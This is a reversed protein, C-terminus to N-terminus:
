KFKKLLNEFNNVMKEYDNLRKFSEICSDSYKKYVSPESIKIIAEVLKNEDKYPILIGNEGSTVIEPIGGRDTAVCPIGFRMTELLSLPIGEGASPLLALDIESAYKDTDEVYGHFVVLENLPSDECLKHLREKEPGDGLIHIKSVPLIDINKAISKLAWEHGKNAHLKATIGIRIKDKIERPENLVPKDVCNPIVCLTDPNAGQDLLHKEVAKSVAILCDSGKYYSLRNLGHIHSLTYIGFLKGAKGSILGAKNLHSSIYAPRIKLLDFVTKFAFILGEFAMSVFGSNIKLDKLVGALPQGACTVSVSYGRQELRKILGLALREGGGMEGSSIVFHIKRRKEFVQKKYVDFHAKLLNERVFLEEVRRRGRKGMSEAEIRGGAIQKIQEALMKHDDPEFFLGTENQIVIEPIGGVKAAIVPLSREMAECIHIGFAESRSPAVFVDLRELFANKEVITGVFECKDAINLANALQTLEVKQKGGGGIYLKFNVGQKDLLACAKLLCDIGKIRHLRSLTGITLIADSNKKADSKEAQVSVGPYICVSNKDLKVINKDYWNSLFRSSFIIKDSCGSMFRELVTYFDTETGHITSILVSNLFFLHAARAWFTARFLHSHVVDPKFSRMIKILKIFGFIDFFAENLLHVKVGLQAFSDELYGGKFCAVEVSCDDAVAKKVLDGLVSQAGGVTLANIVFLIKM